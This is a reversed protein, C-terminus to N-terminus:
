KWGSDMVAYSSDPLGQAWAVIDVAENGANNVVAAMPPSLFCVCDMARRLSRQYSFNGIEQDAAGSIVLSIDIAETSQFLAYGAPAGWATNMYDGDQLFANSDVGGSLASYIAGGEIDTVTATAGSTLGQVSMSDTFTGSIPAIALQSFAYSIVTGSITSYGSGGSNVTYSTIQGSSIVPTVSAGVGPGSIVVTAATYGSGVATPTLAIVRGTGDVTVVATAGSGLPVVTATPAVGPQTLTNNYGSGGATVTISTVVGSTITATATASTGGGGTISVTPTAVYGSGGSSVPISLVTGTNFTITGATAGSGVATIAVTASTYTSTGPNDVVLSTVVGSTLVAHATAGAGDGSIVVTPVSTYGSGGVLSTFGTIIGGGVTVDATAGSGSSLAATASTYNAGPATVTISTVADGTLVAVATALGNGDGTITVTPPVLYGSGGSSVPITQIGGAGVVPTGLIAGSGSSVTAGTADAVVEGATFTGVVGTVTLTTALQQFSLSPDSSGWNVAVNIGLQEETPHGMWWVFRSQANIVQPYYSSTGDENTAIACKSVFPFTELVTGPTGTWVGTVDVTCVHMEDNMGGANSVVTSTNPASQFSTKYQWAGFSAADAMAVAITNGLDGAYKAAFMGVNGQGNAYDANYITENMILLGSGDSTANLHKPGHIDTATKVIRVTQLANAYALFNAACFWTNATTNDPEGFVSVLSNQGSNQSDILMPVNAPGWRFPGAIAGTTTAVAPIITTLDIETVNIGPSVQFGM